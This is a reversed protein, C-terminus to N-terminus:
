IIFIFKIINERFYCGNQGPTLHTLDTGRGVYMRTHSCTNITLVLRWDPAVPPAHFLIFVLSCVGSHYTMVNLVASVCQGPGNCHSCIGQRWDPALGDAVVMCIQNHYSHADCTDHQMWEFFMKSLDLPGGDTLTKTTSPNAKQCRYRAMHYKYSTLLFQTFHLISPKCSFRNMTILVTTSIAM